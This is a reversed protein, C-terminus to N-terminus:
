RLMLVLIKRKVFMRWWGSSPTGFLGADVTGPGFEYQNEAINWDVVGFSTFDGTSSNIQEFGGTQYILRVIDEPERYFLNFLNSTVSEARPHSVIVDYSGPTTTLLTATGSTVVSSQIVGNKRWSYELLNADAGAIEAKATIAVITGKAFIKNVSAM